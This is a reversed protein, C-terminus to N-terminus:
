IQKLFVELPQQWTKIPSSLLTKIKGCNFCSNLPRQAPSKFDSTKCPSLNVNLNLKEVIYKAMDFRSVYGDAAFHFLGVPKHKIVDCIAKAAEVTSTPSGIQDDVVKMPAGEKAKALLKAVFNNGNKGYTWQVRIVCSRCGSEILLREGDLKSKGYASIPNTADTETYPRNLSGDFVFDTSIHLLWAGHKNSIAGLLGVAKANVKFALETESEAKDVNTYAACNIVIDTKKVAEEIQSPNTIDFEPLDFVHCNNYGLVNLQSAIDTGLMGRGGLIIIKPKAM